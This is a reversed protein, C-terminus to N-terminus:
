QRALKELYQEIAPLDKKHKEFIAKLEEHMSRVANPDKKMKDYKGHIGFMEVIYHADQPNNKAMATLIGLLKWSDAAQAKTPKYKM